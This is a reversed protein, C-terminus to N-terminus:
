SGEKNVLDVGSAKNRLIKEVVQGLYAGAEAPPMGGQHINSVVQRQSEITHLRPQYCLYASLSEASVLGPREGILLVVVDPELHEGVHDMVAVRGKRIFFPTGTQLGKAELSQNLSLYVDELNENIAMSSLGDSAIVQVVPRNTCAEKVKALGEDSLRRGYDPRRIYTDKDTVRTNVTFLGLSEILADDVAGHVADVAAAHDYRFQLWAATPPRPGSKGVGIRAPTQRKLEELDGETDDYSAEQDRKTVRPSRTGDGKEGNEKPFPSFSVEGVPHAAEHLAAGSPSHAGSGGRLKVQQEPPDASKEPKDAHAIQELVLKTITEIKNKDM